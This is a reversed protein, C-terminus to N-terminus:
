WKVKELLEKFNRQKSRQAALALQLYNKPVLKQPINIDDCSM